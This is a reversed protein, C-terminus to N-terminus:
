NCIILPRAHVYHSRPVYLVGQPKDIFLSGTVAAELSHLYYPLDRSLPGQISRELHLRVGLFLLPLLLPCTYTTDIIFFYENQITQNPFYANVEKSGELNWFPNVVTLNKLIFPLMGPKLAYCDWLPSRRTLYAMTTLWTRVKKGSKLVSKSTHMSLPLLAKLIYITQLDWTSYNQLHLRLLHMIKM